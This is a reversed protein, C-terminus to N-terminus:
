TMAPDVRLPVVPEETARASVPEAPSLKVLWVPLGECGSTRRRPKASEGITPTGCPTLTNTSPTRTFSASADCTCRENIGPAATSWMSNIRPETPANPLFENAPASLMTVRRPWSLDTSISSSPPEKPNNLPVTTADSDM